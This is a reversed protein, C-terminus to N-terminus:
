WCRECFDKKFSKAEASINERRKERVVHHVDQFFDIKQQPMGPSEYRWDYRQYFRRTFSNRAAVVANDVEGIWTAVPFVLVESALIQLLEVISKAICFGNIGSIAWAGYAVMAVLDKTNAESTGSSLFQADIITSPVLIQNYVQNGTYNQILRRQGMDALNRLTEYNNDGYVMCRTDGRYTLARGLDTLDQCFAVNQLGLMLYKM